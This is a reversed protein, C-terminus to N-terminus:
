IKISGKTQATMSDPIQEEIWALEPEAIGTNRKVLHYKSRLLTGHCGHSRSPNSPLPVDNGKHCNNACLFVTVFIHAIEFNLM